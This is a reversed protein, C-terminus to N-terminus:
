SLYGIGMAKTHAEFKSQPLPKTLPDAVILDTHVKCIKVDGRDIIERILHYRRFIHKSKQHSRPEKAQAIAAMNDCYLDLPCSASPVVGLESVFKRIWVAEKAAESAAIYEAETAFDAVTDQKSSKWSVAGGNLCFAFGAQSRSDYKDTQFGADTYGKVVLEEEGGFVLFADKTRRLYKLINKVAIWHGEGPCSQYRSTVSLGFSVDPRTCIMAYMISGIASTYPIESMRKQEDTTLPCQTKSLITGPSIPLFGKKYDHMNFRKLVKDIYTSQSLGILRKSRDRYIKIGLIYAAEGLDKMSFSKKLSDKVAELMLIDNGILLIDDVYLVLFVLASGSVKKYVCPEEVNKIFGFGKVVEDFRLNWSRSAQKLGYISKLLKCVKGANQPDVFGDPQTMYVDESLNENLFATKVDMQWVEYDHYAAIALLIRISKLMAVPSFTEDYDVGQIQHFGKAVLRAKYIHVNGDADIKKKFVWKCEIHRVEDLPEVLNWVQNDAMSKLESRM